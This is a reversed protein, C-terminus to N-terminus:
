PIAPFRTSGGDRAATDGRNLVGTGALRTTPNKTM